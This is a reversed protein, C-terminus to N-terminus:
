MTVITSKLAYYQKLRSLYFSNFIKDHDVLDLIVPERKHLVFRIVRGAAQKINARPTAMVLTDWHPVNTGTSAMAYTALVVQKTKTAKLAIKSMGGIYYGIKDGTIHGGATLMQFLRELQDKLDSLVLITRGAKIASAIFEVILDNRLQSNAQAKTVLMMQGPAHPIKVKVWVGKDTDWKSKEPIRWGTKKVLIKPRMPVLHGRVLVPGIHNEVLKWRGDSRDPTASFGLRHMAPIKWCINVFCEAAMQHVEDLIMMGFYQYMEPPYRDPIILSHVMGIVFRKGKWDCTDQQITGVLGPSIGLINVLADYWSDMLDQKTVVILTTQGMQAAIYSGVVSKGWGTPAEFVHDIGKKLLAISAEALPQQEDNVPDFNCNIASIDARVRLDKEGVPTSNRPVHLRDGEKKSMSIKDGFNSMFTYTDELGKSYPFVASAGTLEPQM